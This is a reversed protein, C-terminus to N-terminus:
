KGVVHKTLYARYTAEPKEDLASHFLYDSLNSHGFREHTIALMAERVKLANDRSIINLANMAGLLAAMMGERLAFAARERTLVYQKSEITAGLDPSGAGPLKIRRGNFHIAALWLGDSDAFPASELTFGLCADSASHCPIAISGGNSQGFLTTAFRFHMHGDNMSIGLAKLADSFRYLTLAERNCRRFEKLIGELHPTPFLPVIPALLNQVTNVRLNELESGTLHCYMAMLANENIEVGHFKWEGRGHDYTIDSHEHPAHPEVWAKTTDLLQRMARGVAIHRQQIVLTKREPYFSVPVPYRDTGYLLRSLARGLVELSSLEPKLGATVAIM